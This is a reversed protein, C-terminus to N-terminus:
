QPARAADAQIRRRLKSRKRGYGFYVALGLAMWVFLRIITATTATYMLLGSTLAGLVPVVFPGGPAKFARPLDPRRLRLIMVGISVLVFAFLTGISTLEALIDIPLVGGAVACVSGTIITTVYPTGFHPHIKAAGAPFLGDNAMAFFIRPQGLLMVLMVSSLGAIAGVEVATALWLQGTAEVGLAIPHPVSLRKYSVVGTLILSVAIYLVTCVALSGLIGIPLDKQPNRTEQAATSVADFGIYAFFVMTAGQLVGSAGFRGFPGENPPVFPHWNETRVFRAAFAIFLLVVVVKVVVIIANFRASERIGRVLLATVALVVLVAPVNLYAGTARFHDGQWVTPARTWATPLDIGFTDHFFAVVYGSWGVSVAAASVLYELILDWGIIWAVLEGMTAYSYTYASGAIPIMSAMESYCLGAFASAVGAVVFSLAVAPGANAAAARGTLVFIGTGIIAGIGLLVLDVSTLSRKLGHERAAQERLEDISKTAFLERITM